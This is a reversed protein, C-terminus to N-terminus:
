ACQLARQGDSAECVVHFSTIGTLLLVYISIFFFIYGGGGTFLASVGGTQSRLALLTKRWPAQPSLNALRDRLAPDLGPRAHLIRGLDRGEDLGGAGGERCPLGCSVAYPM